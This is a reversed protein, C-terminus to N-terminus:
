DKRYVKAGAKGGACTGYSVTLEDGQFSVGYTQTSSTPSPLYQPNSCSASLASTLKADYSSTGYEVQYNQIVHIQNDCYVKASVTMLGGNHFTMLEDATAPTFTSGCFYGQFRWSGLLAAESSVPAESASATPTDSSDPTEPLNVTVPMQGCATLTVAAMLIMILNTM